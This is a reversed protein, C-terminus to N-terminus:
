KLEIELDDRLKTGQPECNFSSGFFSLDKIKEPNEKYFNLVKDKDDCHSFLNYIDGYYLRADDRKFVPRNWDDIGRFYLTIKKIKLKMKTKEKKKFYDIDSKQIKYSLCENCPLHHFGTNHQERRAISKKFKSCKNTWAQRYICGGCINNGNVTKQYLTGSELKREMADEFDRQIRAKSRGM